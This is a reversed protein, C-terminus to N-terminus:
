AELSEEPFTCGTYGVVHQFQPFNITNIRLIIISESGIEGLIDQLSDSDTVINRFLLEPIYRGLPSENGYGIMMVSAYVPHDQARYDTGPTRIVLYKRCEKKGQKRRQFVTENGNVIERGAPDPADRADTGSELM